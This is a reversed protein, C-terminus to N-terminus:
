IPVKIDNVKMFWPEFNTKVWDEWYKKDADKIKGKGSRPSLKTLKVDNLMPGNAYDTMFDIKIELRFEKGDKELIFNETCNFQGYDSTHYLPILFTASADNMDSPFTAFFIKLATELKQRPPSAVSVILGKSRTYRELENDLLHDM